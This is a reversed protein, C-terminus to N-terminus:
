SVPELLIHTFMYRMKTCGWFGEEDMSNLVGTGGDGGDGSLIRWELM